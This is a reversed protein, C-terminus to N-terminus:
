RPCDQSVELLETQSTGSKYDHDLLGKPNMQM